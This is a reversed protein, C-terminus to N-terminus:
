QESPAKQEMIWKQLIVIQDIDKQQEVPDLEAYPKALAPNGYEPDKVWENRSIWNEHILHGFKQRAAEDNVFDQKLIEEEGYEELLQILFQAGGRNQEKWYESYQDYPTNAIDIVAKQAEEITMGERVLDEPSKNKYAKEGNVGSYCRNDEDVKFVNTDWSYYFSSM